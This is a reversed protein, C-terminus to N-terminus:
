YGLEPATILPHYGAELASILLLTAIKLMKGWILVKVEWKLCKGEGQSAEPASYPRPLGHALQDTGMNIIEKRIWFCKLVTYVGGARAVAHTQRQLSLLFAQTTNTTKTHTPFKKTNPARGQGPLQRACHASSAALHCRVATERWRLQGMPRPSRFRGGSGPQPAM